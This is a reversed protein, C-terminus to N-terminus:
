KEGRENNIQRDNLYLLGYRVMNKTGPPAMEIELAKLAQGIVDSYSAKSDGCDSLIELLRQLRQNDDEPLWCSIKSEGAAIKADRFQKQRERNSIAM